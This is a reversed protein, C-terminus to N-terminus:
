GTVGKLNGDKSRFLYKLTTNKKQNYLYRISTICVEFNKFAYLINFHSYNWSHKNNVNQKNWNEKYAYTHM